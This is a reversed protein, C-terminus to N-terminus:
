GRGPTRPPVYKKLLSRDRQQGPNYPKHLKNPSAKGRGPTSPTTHPVHPGRQSGVSRGNSLYRKTANSSPRQNGDTYPRNAHKKTYAERKLRAARRRFLQEIANKARRNKIKRAIFRTGLYTGGGIAVAPLAATMTAAVAGAAIAPLALKINGILIAKKTDSRRTKLLQDSYAKHEKKLREEELEEPTKKKGWKMGKIGWHQLTEESASKPVYNM